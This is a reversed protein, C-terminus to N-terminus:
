VRVGFMLLRAFERRLDPIAALATLALSRGVAVPAARSAFLGPLRRTLAVIAARDSRRRREYGALTEVPDRGAALAHAIGDALRAADRMGLNLGQGAVPHLTQAANGIWVVRHEHLVDRALEYLPYRARPGVRVIRGSRRGFSQQLEAAFRGDDLQLRREADAAPMCWVLSMARGGAPPGPLPLLALPGERTFREFADGAAPGDVVVDAVLAVQDADAAPVGTGEANVVLAARRESGDDLRAVVHDPRQALDIVRAPRTLQVFGSAECAQALPALLDGYRITVGLPGTGVDDVGLLVRGFEGASSVHVTRIPAVFQSSLQALPALLDLTGRSLALLRHDTRAAELTRADVVETAVGRRALMLAFVLGVPGGGVILIRNATTM